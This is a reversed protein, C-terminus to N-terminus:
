GLGLRRLLVAPDATLARVEDLPGFGTLGSADAGAFAARLAQRAHDAIAAAAASALWARDFEVATVQGAAVMVRVRRDASAGWPPAPGVARDLDPLRGIAEVVLCRLEDLAEPDGPVPGASGSWDAGAPAGWRGPGDAHAPGPPRDGATERAPRARGGAEVRRRSDAVDDGASPGPTSRGAGPDALGVPPAPDARDLHGAWARV